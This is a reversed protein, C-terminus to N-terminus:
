RLTRNGSCKLQRGELMLRAAKLRQNVHCQVVYLKGPKVVAHGTCVKQQV